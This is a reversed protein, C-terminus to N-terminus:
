IEGRWEAQSIWGKKLLWGCIRDVLFDTHGSILCFGTLGAKHHEHHRRTSYMLGAKQLLRILKVGNRMKKSGHVCAHIHNTHLAIVSCMLVIFLLSDAILGSTLWLLGGSFLLLFSAAPLTEFFFHSYTLRLYPRVNRHHIKFSYVVEELWTAHQLVSQKMVEFEKGSRDGQYHFLVEFGKKNDLPRYDLYIHILGSYFDANLWALIVLFFWYYFPAAQYDPLSVAGLWLLFYLPILLSKFSPVQLIREMGLKNKVRINDPLLQAFCRRQNAM